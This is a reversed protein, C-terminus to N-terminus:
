WCSLAWRGFRFGFFAFEGAFGLLGGLGALGLLLDEELVLTEAVAAEVDLLDQEWEWLVGVEHQGEDTFVLEATVAFIELRHNLGDDMAHIFINDIIIDVILIYENNDILRKPQNHLSRLPPLLNPELLIPRHRRHNDLLKKFPRLNQMVRFLENPIHQEFYRFNIM